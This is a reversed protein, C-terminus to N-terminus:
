EFRGDNPGPASVQGPCDITYGEDEITWIGAQVCYTSARIADALSEFARFAIMGPNLSWLWGGLEPVTSTDMMVIDPEVALVIPIWHDPGPYAGPILGQAREQETFM